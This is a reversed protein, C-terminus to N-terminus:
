SEHRIGSEAEFYDLLNEATVKDADPTLAEHVRTELATMIVRIEDAELQFLWRQSM